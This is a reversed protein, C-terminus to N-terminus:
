RIVTANPKNKYLEDYRVEVSVGQFKFDERRFDDECVCGWSFYGVRNSFNWWHKAYISWDMVVWGLREKWVRYGWSVDGGRINDEIKWGLKRLASYKTLWFGTSSSGVIEIGYPKPSVPFITITQERCSDPEPFVSVKKFGWAMPIGFARDGLRRGFISPSVTVIKENENMIGLMKNLAYHPVTVDDEWNLVLDTDLPVLDFFVQQLIEIVRDSTKGYDDQFEITAKLTDDRHYIVDKFYLKDAWSRIDKAFLEDNSNDWIVYTVQTKDFDLEEVSQKYKNLCYWKGTFSSTLTIM